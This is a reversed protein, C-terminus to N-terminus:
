QLDYCYVIVAQDKRLQATSAADLTKIFINIAGPLHDEAYEEPSMVDVLQAGRALMTRVDDRTIATPM